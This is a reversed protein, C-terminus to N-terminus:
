KNYLKESNWMSQLFDIPNYFHKEVEKITRCKTSYSLIKGIECTRPKKLIEFHLHNYEWGFNNLQQKDMLTAIVTDSTVIDGIKVQVNTVHVYVSYVTERSPLIHKIMVGRNPEITYISVVEGRSAAFIKECLGGKPNMIDIGTHFHGGKRKALFHADHEWFVSKLDKRSDTRLPLKWYYSLLPYNAAISNLSLFILVIFSIKRNIVAM